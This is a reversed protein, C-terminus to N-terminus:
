TGEGGGHPYLKITFSWDEVSAIRTRDESDAGSEKSIFLKLM